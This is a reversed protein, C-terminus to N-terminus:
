IAIWVGDNEVKAPYVPIRLAENDLCVGSVLSYHEKQLPSAVTLEGGRDGTMGRSMVYAQGVPDYNSTAYVQGDIYFLAVQKGDVLAAVGADKVLDDVACVEIFESM